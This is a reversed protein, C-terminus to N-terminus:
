RIRYVYADEIFQDGVLHGGLRMGEVSSAKSYARRLARILPDNMEHIIFTPVNRLEFGGELAKDYVMGIGERQGMRDLQRSAIALRWDEYRSLYLWLLVSVSLGGDDLVKLMQKGNEIDASVLSTKVM